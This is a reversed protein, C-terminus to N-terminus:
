EKYKLAKKLKTLNNEMISIFNTNNDIENKTLNHSAHLLELKVGTSSSISKAVKPDLLEEYFLYEIKEKKIIEILEAIKQPTPELNPSFGDYPSVHVLGYRKALYGFAFHGGYMITKLQCKDLTEKYNTDLKTLKENYNKANELYFDKNAPDIEGLKEAISNVIKKDIEFDLWIHPDKGNHSHHNDDEHHEVGKESDEGESHEEEGHHEDESIMEIDRCAEIVTLTDKRISNIIDHAWPEMTEGIYIFMASENIRVIDMPTPEFSHAETGPPLIILVDVRDKGVERTFDYLPFISTIIKIKKNETTKKCSITLLSLLICLFIVALNRM